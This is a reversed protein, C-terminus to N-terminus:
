KDLIEKKCCECLTPYKFVVVNMRFQPNLTFKEGKEFYLPRLENEGTEENLSNEYGEIWFGEDYLNKDVTLAEEFTLLDWKDRKCYNEIEERAMLACLKEIKRKM